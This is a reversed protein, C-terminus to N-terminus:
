EERSGGGFHEAGFGAGLLKNKLGPSWFPWSWVAFALRRCEDWLDDPSGIAVPIEFPLGAWDYEYLSAWSCMIPYREMRSLWRFAYVDSRAGLANWALTLVYDLGHAGINLFSYSKGSLRECAELIKERQPDLVLKHRAVAISYRRADGYGVLLPNYQFGGRGVAEAILYDVIPGADRMDQSLAPAGGDGAIVEAEFERIPRIVTVVHNVVTPRKDRRTFTGLRILFAGLWELPPGFIERRVFVQDGVHLRPLEDILLRGPVRAIVSRVKAGSLRPGAPWRKVYEEYAEWDVAAPDDEGFTPLPTSSSEDRRRGSM